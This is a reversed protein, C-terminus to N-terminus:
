EDTNQVGSPTVQGHVAQAVLEDAFPVEEEAGGARVARATPVVRRVNLVELGWHEQRLRRLGHPQRKAARAQRLTGRIVGAAPGHDVVLGELDVDVPEGEQGKGPEVEAVAVADLHVHRATALGLQTPVPVLRARLPAAVVRLLLRRHRVLMVAEEGEHGRAHLPARLVVLHELGLVVVRKRRVEVQQLVQPRRLRVLPPEPLAESLDVVHGADEAGEGGALVPLHLLALRDREELLGTGLRPPQAADLFNRRM